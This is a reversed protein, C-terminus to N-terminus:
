KSGPGGMVPPKSQAQPQQPQEMEPSPEVAIGAKHLERTFNVIQSKGRDIENDLEQYRADMKPISDKRQQIDFESHKVLQRRENVETSITKRQQTLSTIQVKLQDHLNQIRNHLAEDYDKGKSERNLRDLETQAKERDGRSYALHEKLKEVREDADKFAQHKAKVDNLGAKLFEETRQLNEASFDLALKKHKAERENFAKLVEADEKQLAKYQNELDAKLSDEKKLIDRKDSLLNIIPIREWTKRQDKIEKKSLNRSQLQDELEKMQAALVARDRQLMQERGAKEQNYKYELYQEPKMVYIHGAGSVKSYEDACKKYNEEAEKIQEKLVPIAAVATELIRKQEIKKPQLEKLKEMVKLDSALDKLTNKSETLDDDVRKLLQEDKALREKVIKLNNEDTVLNKKLEERQQALTDRERIKKPLSHHLERVKELRFANAKKEAETQAKEHEPAFKAIHAEKEQRLQDKLRQQEEEIKRRTEEEEMQKRLEEDKQQQLREQEKQKELERQKELQEQEIRKLEEDHEQKYGAVKDSIGTLKELGKQMADYYAKKDNYEQVAKGPRKLIHTAFFDCIKDYLSPKKPPTLTAGLTERITPADAPDFTRLYSVSNLEFPAICISKGEKSLMLTQGENEIVNLLTHENASFGINLPKVTATGDANYKVSYASMRPAFEEGKFENIINELIKVRDRTAFRVANECILEKAQEEFQEPVVFELM